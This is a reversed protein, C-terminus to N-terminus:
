CVSLRQEHHARPVSGGGTRQTKATDCVAAAARASGAASWVRRSRLRPPTVGQYGISTLALSVGFVGFVGFM